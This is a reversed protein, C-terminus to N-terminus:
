INPALDSSVKIPIFYCDDAPESYAKYNYEHARVYCIQIKPDKLAVLAVGITSIKNNLPAIVVNYDQYKKIQAEIQRCTDSPEILSFEFTEAFPYKEILNIHRTRNIAYHSPDISEQEPGIGISVKDFEFDEILKSTRELEFGFLIILHNKQSPNLIGPYGLVSRITKTGKSLWKEEDNQENLSYAKAGVYVVFLNECKEKFLDIFKFLILLGEHTFTSVDVLLNSIKKLDQFNKLLAKGTIIPDNTSFAILKSKAYTESHRLNEEYFEKENENYTFWIEKVITKKYVSDIFSFCRKEFSIASIFLDIEPLISNIDKLKVPKM